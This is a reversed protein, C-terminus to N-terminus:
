GQLGSYSASLYSATKFQRHLVVPPGCPVSSFANNQAINALPHTTPVLYMRTLSYPGSM